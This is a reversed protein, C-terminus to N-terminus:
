ICNSLDAEVYDEGKLVKRGNPNPTKSMNSDHVKTFAVEANWGFVEATGLLVYIVDCMEKLVEKATADEPCAIFANWADEFEGIEESVLNERDQWANDFEKTNSKINVYEEIGFKRHFNSVKMPWTESRMM